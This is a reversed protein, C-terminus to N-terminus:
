SHPPANPFAGSFIDIVLRQFTVADHVLVLQDKSEASHQPNLYVLVMVDDSQIFGVNFSLYFFQLASTVLRELTVIVRLEFSDAASNMIEFSLDM